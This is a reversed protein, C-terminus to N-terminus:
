PGASITVTMTGTYTGVRSQAPIALSVDLSQTYTGQGFGPAAALTKRAADLAGTSGTVPPNPGGLASVAQGATSAATGASTISFNAAPIATGGNPGSYAFASSQVTVNWGAGTGSSDDATLALTGPSTQASHSYTVAALSLDAVSASRTGANITQTVTNAAGAPAVAAATVAAAVALATAFRPPRSITM